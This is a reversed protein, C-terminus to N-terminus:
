AHAIHVQGRRILRHGHAAQQCAQNKDPLALGQQARHRQIQERHQQAAGGCQQGQKGFVNQHDAGPAQAQQAGRRGHARDEHRCQERTPRQLTAHAM